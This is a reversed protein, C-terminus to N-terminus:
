ERHTFIMGTNKIALGVSAILTRLMNYISLLYINFLPIYWDIRLYLFFNTKSPYYLLNLKSLIYMFYMYISCLKLFISLFAVYHILTDKFSEIKVEVM